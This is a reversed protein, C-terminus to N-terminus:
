FRLGLGFTALWDEDNGEILRYGGLNALFSGNGIQLEVGLYLQDEDVNVPIFWTRMLSAKLGYGLGPGMSDRGLLIKGGGLGAELELSNRPGTDGGFTWGWSGSVILPSSLHLGKIAEARALSIFSFGTFLFLFLTIKKM